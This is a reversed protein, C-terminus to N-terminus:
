PQQRNKDIKETNLCLSGQQFLEVFLDNLFDVVFHDKQPVFSEFLGAHSSIHIEHDHDTVQVGNQKMLLRIRILLSIQIFQKVNYM